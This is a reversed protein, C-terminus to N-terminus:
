LAVGHAEVESGVSASSIAEGDAPQLLLCPGRPLQAESSPKKPVKWKHTEVKHMLFKAFGKFCIYMFYTYLDLILEYLAYM